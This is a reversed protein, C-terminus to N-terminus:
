WNRSGSVLSEDLMPLELGYKARFTEFAQQFKQEEATLPKAILPEAMAIATTAFFAIVIIAPLIWRMKM